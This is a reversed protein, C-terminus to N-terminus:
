ARGPAGNFYLRGKYGTEDGLFRVHRSGEVTFGGRQVLIYKSFDAFLIKDEPMAYCFIFRPLAGPNSCNLLYVLLKQYYTNRNVIAM